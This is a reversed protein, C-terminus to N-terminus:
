CLLIDQKNLVSSSSVSPDFDFSCFLLIRSNIRSEVNRFGAHSLGRTETKAEGEDELFFGKEIIINGVIGLGSVYCVFISRNEHSNFNKRGGEEM